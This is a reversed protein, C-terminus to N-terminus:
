AVPLSMRITTGSAVKSGSETSSEATIRGGHAEAIAKAIALGLGSGRSESSKAFREFITPLLDASIGPGDDSVAIEISGEVIRASVTVTGGTRVYRLANDVLNSVVERIRIPDVDLIPLDVAVNTALTAGAATARVRFSDAVDSVLIGM